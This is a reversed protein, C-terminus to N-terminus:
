DSWPAWGEGVERPRPLPAAPAIRPEQRVPRRSLEEIWNVLATLPPQALRYVRHRGRREEIVWGSERLIRLHRSVAPRTMQFRAAIRGAPLAGAGLLRLIAERTSDGAASLLIWAPQSTM